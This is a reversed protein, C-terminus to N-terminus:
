FTINGFIRTTLVLYVDHNHLNLSLSILNSTNKNHKHYPMESIVEFATNNHNGFSSPHCCDLRRADTFPM